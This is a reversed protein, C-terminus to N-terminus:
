PSKAVRYHYLIPQSDFLGMELTLGAATITGKPPNGIPDIPAPPIAFDIHTDSIRYHYIITSTFDAGNWQTQHEVVEANGSKDLTITGSLIIPRLGPTLAPPTPLARGDIDNLEFRASVTTPGTSDRCSIVLAISLLLVKPGSLRM